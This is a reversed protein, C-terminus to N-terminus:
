CDYSLTLEDSMLFLHSDYTILKNHLVISISLICQDEHEAYILVALRM